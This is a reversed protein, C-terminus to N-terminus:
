EVEENYVCLLYVNCWRSSAIDVMINLNTLYIKCLEVPVLHSFWSKKNQEFPNKGHTECMFM